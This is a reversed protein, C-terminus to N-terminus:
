RKHPPPPPLGHLVVNWRHTRTDAFIVVGGEKGNMTLKEQLVRGASRIISVTDELAALERVELSGVARPNAFRAGATWGIAGCLLCAAAATALWWPRPRGRDVGVAHEVMRRNLGPRLPVPAVAMPLHRLDEEIRQVEARCEDCRALHDQFAIEDGPELLRATFETRHEIFWDHAKM